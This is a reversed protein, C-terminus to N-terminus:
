WLPIFAFGMMVGAGARGQGDSGDPTVLPLLTQEEVGKVHGVCGRALM